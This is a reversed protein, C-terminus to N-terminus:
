LWNAHMPVPNEAMARPAVSFLHYPMSSMVKKSLCWLKPPVQNM